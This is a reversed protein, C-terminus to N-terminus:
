SAKASFSLARSTMPSGARRTMACSNTVLMLVLTETSQICRSAARARIRTKVNQNGLLRTAAESHAHQCVVQSNPKGGSPAPM